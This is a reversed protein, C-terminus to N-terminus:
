AAREPKTNEHVHSSLFAQLRRYAWRAAYFPIFLTALSVPLAIVIVWPSDKSWDYLHKDVDLWCELSFLMCCVVVATLGSILTGLYRYQRRLVFYAIAIFLGSYVLMFPIFFFCFWAWHVGPQTLIGAALTYIGYGGFGAIALWRLLIKAYM